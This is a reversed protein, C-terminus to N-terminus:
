GTAGGQITCPWTHTHACTGNHPPHTTHPPALAAKPPLSPPLPPVLAPRQFFYFPFVVTRSVDQWMRVALGRGAIMSGGEGGGGESPERVLRPDVELASPAAGCLGGSWKTPADDSNPPRAPLSTHPPTPTKPHPHPPLQAQPSAMARALGPSHSHTSHGQVPSPLLTYPNSKSSLILQTNPCRAAPTSAVHAPRQRGRVVRVSPMCLGMTTKSPGRLRTGRVEVWTHNALRQVGAGPGTCAARRRRGVLQHHHRQQHRRAAAGLGQAQRPPQRPPTVHRGRQRPQARHRGLLQQPHLQQPRWLHTRSRPARTTSSPRQTSPPPLQPEGAM